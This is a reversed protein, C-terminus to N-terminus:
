YSLKNDINHKEGNAAYENQRLAWAVPEYTSSNARFVTWHDGPLPGWATEGARALRLVPSAPNLTADQGYLICCILNTKNKASCIKELHKTECNNRFSSVM